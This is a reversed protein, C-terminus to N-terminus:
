WLALTAVVASLVGTGGAGAVTGNNCGVEVVVVVVEVVVVVIFGVVVVAAGLGVVVVVVVGGSTVTNAACDLRFLKPKQTPPMSPRKPAEM